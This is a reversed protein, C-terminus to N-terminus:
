GTVSVLSGYTLFPYAQQAANYPLEVCGLSQQYGYGPRAFYHVADGGNFYSVFQVPDSYHSGDPNTGSMITNLFREYVPFTGDVTPASPIGTNALTHLVLQGNHWITLTEPSGKSAIAYTYGAQNVEGSAEAQFLANWLRPTLNGDITMNHQAQFAMVAGRLLVNAQDPSWLQQLTAPYGADWQFNGAPPEYAQGAPTQSATSTAALDAIDARTAGNELPSWTMPLYGLKALLQALAAQSYTGTTFQETFSAALLGGTVSRVGDPGAPVQVTVRESPGFVATPMFVMSDGEATWSGAVSPTLQPRASDAAVPANFNVVIPAAGDVGTARSAPTISVVHIPGKPPPPLAAAAPQGSGSSNQTVAYTVGAAVVAAIAVGVAIVRKSATTRPRPKSSPRPKSGPSPKSGTQGTPSAQNDEGEPRTSETHDDPQGAGLV